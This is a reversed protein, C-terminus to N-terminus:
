FVSGNANLLRLSVNDMKVPIITTDGVRPDNGVMTWRFLRTSTSNPGAGAHFAGDFTALTDLGAITPKNPRVDGLAFHDDNGAQQGANSNVNANGSPAGSIVAGTEADFTLSTSAYPAGPVTGVNIPGKSGFDIVASGVAAAAEPDQAFGLACLGLLLVFCLTFRTAISM